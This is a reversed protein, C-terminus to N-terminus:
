LRPNRSRLAVAGDRMLAITRGPIYIDVFLALTPVDSRQM